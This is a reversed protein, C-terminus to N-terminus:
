TFHFYQGIHKHRMAHRNIQNQKMKLENEVDTKLAINWIHHILKAPVLKTVYSAICVRRISGNRLLRYKNCILNKTKNSSGLKRISLLFSFNLRIISSLDSSLYDERRAIINEWKLEANAAIPGNLSRFWGSHKRNYRRQGNENELKKRTCNSSSTLVSLVRKLFLM